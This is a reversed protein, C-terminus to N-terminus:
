DKGREQIRLMRKKFADIDEEPIERAKRIGLLRLNRLVDQKSITRVIAEGTLERALKTSPSKLAKLRNRVLRQGLGNRIEDHSCLWIDILDNDMLCIICYKGIVVWEGERKIFASKAIKNDFFKMLSSKTM